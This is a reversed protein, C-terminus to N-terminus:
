ARPKSSPAIVNYHIPSVYCLFLRRQADGANACDERSDYRLLWNEHETTVVHITVSFAEAAARLTLEDGWTRNKEMKSIYRAWDDSDGVFMSFSEPHSVLWDIVRQRVSLHWRQHGFLEHSLARFQCNGDDEMQITRMSLFDMRQDLLYLGDEIKEERSMQSRILDAQREEESYSRQPPPPMAIESLCDQQARRMAVIKKALHARAIMLTAAKLTIGQSRPTSHSVLHHHVFRDYAARSTIRPPAPMTSTSSSSSASTSASSSASSSSSSFFFGNNGGTIGGHADASSWDRVVGLAQNLDGHCTSLVGALADVDWTPFIEVLQQVKLADDAADSHQQVVVARLPAELRPAGGSAAASSSSCLGM